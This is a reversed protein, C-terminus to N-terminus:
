KSALMYRRRFLVDASRFCDLGGKELEFPECTSRRNGRVTVSFVGKKRKRNEGGM